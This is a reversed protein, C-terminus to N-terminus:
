ERELFEDLTMSEHKDERGRHEYSRKEDIIHLVTHGRQKLADAIFRRHCRFFLLEACMLAVRQSSALEEVKILGNEFEATTIYERYGGRRYGGLETVHHYAIGHLNLSAELNEQKFHNHKSTPFRRVDIVAEIQYVELVHLFEEISRNSTGITWIKM